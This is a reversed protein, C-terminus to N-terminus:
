GYFSEMTLQLPVPNRQLPLWAGPAFGALGSDCTVPLGTTLCLFNRLGGGTSFM